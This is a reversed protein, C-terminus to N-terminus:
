CFYKSNYNVIVRTSFSADNKGIVRLCKFTISSWIISFKTSGTVFSNKNLKEVAIIASGDIKTGKPLIKQM